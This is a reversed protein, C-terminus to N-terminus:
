PQRGNFGLLKDLPSADAPVKIEPGIIHPPREEAFGQQSFGMALATLEEPYEGKIGTAQELDWSHVYMDYTPFAVLAAGPMEGAPSPLLQELVGDASFAQTARAAAARFDAAMDEGLVHPPNFPDGAPQNGSFIDAWMGLGFVMHNVLESATWEKCGTAASPTQAAADVQRQALECAKDFMEIPDM